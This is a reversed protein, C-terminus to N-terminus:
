RSKLVYDQKLLEVLDEFRTRHVQPGERRGELVKGETKKLVSSAERKERKGTSQQYPKGCDYYKMWWPGVEVLKGTKADKKKRRYLMGM